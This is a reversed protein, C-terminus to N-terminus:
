DIGPFPRVILPIYRKATVHGAGIELRCAAVTRKLKLVATRM